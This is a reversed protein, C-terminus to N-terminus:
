AHPRDPAGPPGIPAGLAPDRTGPTPSPDSGGTAGLAALRAAIRGALARRAHRRRLLLGASAALLMGGIGAGGAALHAAQPGSTGSRGPLDGPTGDKGGGVAIVAAPAAAGTADAEAPTGTIPVPEGLDGLRVLDSARELRVVPGGDAARVLGTVGVADGPALLPLLAAADGGAAVRGLATGDDLAFGTEDVDMVLGGVQVRQGEHGALDALDISAPGAGTGADLPGAATSAPGAV